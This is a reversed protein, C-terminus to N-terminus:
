NETKRNKGSVHEMDLRLICTRHFSKRIYSHSIDVFGPSYKAVFLNLSKYREEEPLDRTIRGYVLASEYTTSFQQPLLQTHGVVCFSVRNNNRISDLKFGEEACHFYIAKGNLVFNMPIGYGYGNVGCIALFGYEGTELLQLTRNDDLIRDTRRINRFVPLAKCLIQCDFLLTGYNKKESHHYRYGRKQYFTWATASTTLRVENNGQKEAQKELAELIASGIGESQHAHHTFLSEITKGEASLSGFGIIGADSDMVLTYREKLFCDWSAADPQAPAWAEVEDPSYYTISVNHITEKFLRVVTELDAPSYLRIMQTSSKM